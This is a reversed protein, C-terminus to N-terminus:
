FIWKVDIEEAAFALFTWQCYSTPVPSNKEQGPGM